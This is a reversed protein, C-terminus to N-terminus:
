PSLLAVPQLVCDIAFMFGDGGDMAGVHQLGKGVRPEESESEDIERIGRCIQPEREEQRLHEFGKAQRIHLRTQHGGDWIDDPRKANQDEAVNGVLVLFTPPRQKRRESEGAESQDRGAEHSPRKQGDADHGNSRNADVPGFRREPGQRRQKERATGCGTPYREDVRNTIEATEDARIYHTPDSLDCFAILSPKVEKPPEGEHGPDQRQDDDIRAETLSAPSGYVRASSLRHPWPTDTGHYLSRRSPVEQPRSRSGKSPSAQQLCPIDSEFGFPM